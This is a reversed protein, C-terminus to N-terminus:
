RLNLSDRLNKTIQSEYSKVTNVFNIKKGLRTQKTLSAIIVEEGNKVTKKGLYQKKMKKFRNLMRTNQPTVHAMLYKKNGATHVWLVKQYVLQSIVNKFEKPKMRPSAMPVVLYKAKKVTITAGNELTDMIYSVKKNPYVAMGPLRTQDQDYITKSFAKAFAKSKVKVQQKIHSELGKKIDLFSTELTKKAADRFEQKIYKKYIERGQQTFLGTFSLKGM